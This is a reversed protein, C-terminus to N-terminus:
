KKEIKRVRIHLEELQAEAVDSPSETLPCFASQTKPFAIVDRISDTGTLEMVLRDLGFAIGGHPPAGSELADVLFGFKEQIAEESHGMMSLIKRQLEAKHIRISGGGIEMGNLVMDYANTRVKMPETDLLSIDEALPSTFPHHLAQLRGTEKEVEFMPADVLWLFKLDKKDILSFDEGLKLRLRGLAEAVVAPRDAVMLIMDGTKAGLTTKLGEIETENFFKAIPSTLGDEKFAIWGLGKAGFKNVFATYKDMDTRSLTAGGKLCIGKVQGGSQTVKSFVQLQCDKVVQTVDTLLMGFRMDPKDSGYRDMAEAYTMRILPRPIKPADGHAGVSEEFLPLIMTEMLAMIEEQSIFSMEIDVQTFEPQRDARLDEDRFCRAIQFYRDLGGVMLLQKFLQPSQPLAYFQGPHVRSPVLYDRAGEPTSKTLIPTEVEIFGHDSLFDRFRKMVKHRGILRSQIENRRLDLYRYKLRVMEDTAIGDEIEFVPPKARNLIELHDVYVEIEGTAIKPNVSGEPRGGSM